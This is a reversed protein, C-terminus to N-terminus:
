LHVNQPRFLGVKYYSNYFVRSITNQVLAKWLAQFIYKVFKDGKFTKKESRSSLLVLLM